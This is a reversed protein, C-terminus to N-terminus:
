ERPENAVAPGSLFERVARNFADAQEINSFHAAPLEVYRAGAVAKCVVDADAPTTVPDYRGAIVLTPAAIQGIISRLDADRIAAVCGCYGAPAADLVMGQCSRVVDPHAARYPETFWREPGAESVPALGRANILDIREQWQAINGIRAATNAIAIRGIRHRAHVALWMATLGGLSLGCIDARAAGAAGLFALADKGLEALTYEGAPAGSQGHGRQDYRIVRYDRTFAPVQQNWFPMATGLANSLLLAPKDRPGEVSYAIAGGEISVEAM